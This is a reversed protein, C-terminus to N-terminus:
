IILIVVFSNLKLYIIWNQNFSKSNVNKWVTKCIRNQMWQKFNSNLSALLVFVKSVFYIRCVNYTIICSCKIKVFKIENVVM